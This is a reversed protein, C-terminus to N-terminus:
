HDLADFLTLRFETVTLRLHKEHNRNDKDILCRDFQAKLRLNHHLHLDIAISENAKNWLRLRTQVFEGLYIQDPAEFRDALLTVNRKITECNDVCNSNNSKIELQDASANWMKFRIM